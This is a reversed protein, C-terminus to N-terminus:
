ATVSGISHKTVATNSTSVDKRQNSLVVAHTPYMFIRQATVCLISVLTCPWSAHSLAFILQFNNHMCICLKVHQSDQMCGDMQCQATSMCSATMLACMIPWYCPLCAVSHTHTFAIDSSMARHLLLFVFHEMKLEPPAGAVVSEHLRM